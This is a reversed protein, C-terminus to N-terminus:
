AARDQPAPRAGVGRPRAREEPLGMLAGEARGLRVAQEGLEARCGRDLPARQELCMQLLLDPVNQADGDGADIGGCRQFTEPEVGQHRELEAVPELGREAQGQRGREGPVIRRHRGDGRMELLAQPQGRRDHLRPRRLRRRGSSSRSSASIWPSESSSTWRSSAPPRRASVILSMAARIAASDGSRWARSAARRRADPDSAVGRRSGMAM